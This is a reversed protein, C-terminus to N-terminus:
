VRLIYATGAPETGFLRQDLPLPLFACTVLEAEVGPM